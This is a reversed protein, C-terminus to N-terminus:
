LTNSYWFSRHHLYSMEMLNQALVSIVTLATHCIVSDISYSFTESTLHTITIHVRGHYLSYLIVHCLAIYFATNSAMQRRESVDRILQEAKYVATHECIAFCVTKCILINEFPPKQHNQWTKSAEPYWNTGLIHNSACVCVCM